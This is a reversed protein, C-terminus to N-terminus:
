GAGKEFYVSLEPNHKVDRYHKVGGDNSRSSTQRTETRANPASDSSDSVSHRERSARARVVGSYSVLRDTFSFFREASM